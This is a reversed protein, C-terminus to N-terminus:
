NKFKVFKFQKDVTINDAKYMILYFVKNKDMQFSFLNGYRETTGIIEYWGLIKNASDLGGGYCCHSPIISNDVLIFGNKTVTLLIKKNTQGRYKHQYTRPILITSNQSFSNIYFCIFSIIYLLRM